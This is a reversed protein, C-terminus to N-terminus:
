GNRCRRGNRHHLMPGRITNRATDSFSVPIRTDRLSWAHAIRTDAHHTVFIRVTTGGCDMLSLRDVHKAPEVVSALFAAHILLFSSASCQNEEHSSLFLSAGDASISGHRIAEAKCSIALFFLAVRGARCSISPEEKCCSLRGHSSIYDDSMAGEIAIMCSDVPQEWIYASYLHLPHGSRANYVMMRGM